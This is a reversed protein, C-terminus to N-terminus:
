LSASNRLQPFGDRSEPAGKSYGWGTRIPGSVVGQTDASLQTSLLPESLPKFARHSDPLLNLYLINSVILLGAGHHVCGCTALTM